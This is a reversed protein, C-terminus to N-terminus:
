DAVPALLAAPKTARYDISFANDQNQIRWVKGSNIMRKWCVLCCYKTGWGKLRSRNNSAATQPRASGSFYRARQM